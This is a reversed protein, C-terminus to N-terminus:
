CRPTRERLANVFEPNTQLDRLPLIYGVHTPTMLFIHTKTEYRRLLDLKTSASGAANLEQFESETLTFTHAGIVTGPKNPLFSVMLLSVLFVFGSVVIGVLVAFVFAIAFPIGHQAYDRPFVTWAFFAAIPLHILWAKRLRYVVYRRFKTYDGKTLEANIQM